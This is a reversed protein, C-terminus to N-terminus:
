IGLIEKKKADFEEQTITGSDLLEKYIKLKDAGGIADNRSAVSSHEQPPLQAYEKVPVKVPAKVIPPVDYKLWFGSLVLAVVDLLLLLLYGFGGGVIACYVGSVVFSFLAPLFWIYNVVVNRKIALIIVVLFAIYTLPRYLNLLYFLNFYLFCPYVVQYIGLLVYAGTSFVVAKKNGIILTVALWILVIPSIIDSIFSLLVSPESLHSFLHAKSMDQVISVVGLLGLTAYIIAAFLSLKVKKKTSTM